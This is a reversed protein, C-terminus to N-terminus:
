QTHTLWKLCLIGCVVLQTKYNSGKTKMDCTFEM